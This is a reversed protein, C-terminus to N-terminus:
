KRRRRSKIHRAKYGIDFQVIESRRFNEANRRENNANYDQYAECHAHCNHHREECGKCPANNM